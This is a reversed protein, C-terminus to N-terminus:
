KVKASKTQDLSAPGKFRAQCFFPVTVDRDFYWKLTVSFTNIVLSNSEAATRQDKYFFTTLTPAFALNGIVALNLAGTTTFAYRSQTPLTMGPFMFYDRKSDITVSSRKAKDIAKQLHVDWYAGGAHYTETLPNLVTSATVTANKAVCTAFSIESAHCIIGNPLLLGSLVDNIV